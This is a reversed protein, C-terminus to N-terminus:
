QKIFNSQLRNQMRNILIMNYVGPVFDDASINLRADAGSGITLEKLVQGSLNQILVKVEGDNFGAPLLVSLTNRVPNPVINMKLETNTVIEIKSYVYSGDQKSIKLRYFQNANSMEDTYNGQYLNAATSVPLYTKTALFSIGDISKELTISQLSEDTNIKWNVKVNKGELAAALKIEKFPLIILNNLSSSSIISSSAALAVNKPDFIPAITPTQSLQYYITNTAYSRGTVSNSLIGRNDIIVVTTDLGSGNKIEIPVPTDFYGAGSFTPSQTLQIYVGNTVYQYKVAYTVRGTKTIWDNFFNTMDLSTQAQMYKKLSDVATFKYRLGPSSLYNKLALFFQTDGLWARLMSLIMAGKNYPQSGSSSPDFFIADATSTDTVFTTTNNNVANKLNLRSTAASSASLMNEPYIVSECYQAFGENLWVQQWSNTTIMDGFWQHSLEHAITSQSYGTGSGTAMFTMSQVELAGWNGSCETMGYKETLFPYDVGFVSVYMAMITKIDAMANQYATINDENYLYNYLQLTQGGTVMTSPNTQYNAVAFNIGYIAIPYFTKWTTIINSGSAQETVVGNGSVKYTNPATVILDVCSDVKDYLSEKCPWWMHATFSEDLTYIAMQTGGHTVYNYGSPISTSPGTPTGSYNVTVSDLTGSVAINPITLTLINTSTNHNKTITSGHYIASSVTMAGDLDFQLSTVNAVTTRFYTTVSGSNIAGSVAPNVTFSIRVYTIDYNSGDAFSPAAFSSFFAFLFVVLFTTRM